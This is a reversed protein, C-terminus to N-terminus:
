TTLPDTTTTPSTMTSTTTTGAPGIARPVSVGLWTCLM